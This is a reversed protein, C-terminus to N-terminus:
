PSGSTWATRRRTAAPAVGAPWLDATTTGTRSDVGVTRGAFDRLGVGRRRALPDDSAVAAYRAEVGVLVQEFRNEDLPRRTVAVDVLGEVLGATATNALVLLLTSGPHEPGVAAAAATTHRGLASWAYGVRVEGGTDGVARELAAVEDLVRRAHALVRTGAVTPVVGRSTRQLVRAGVLAELAAVTRSVSAQSTGLAIAADTFTGEEVVALLARLQRVEIGDAMRVAYSPEADQM